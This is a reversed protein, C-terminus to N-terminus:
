RQFTSFSGVLWHQVRAQPSDGGAQTFILLHIISRDDDGSTGLVCSFFRPAVRQWRFMAELGLLVKSPLAEYIYIFPSPLCCHTRAKSISHLLTHHINGELLPKEMKLPQHYNCVRFSFLKLACPSDQPVSNVPVWPKQLRVSSIHWIWQLHHM